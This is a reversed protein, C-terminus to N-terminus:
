KILKVIVFKGHRKLILFHGMNSLEDLKNKKTIIYVLKYNKLYNRVMEKDRTKILVRNLYFFASYGKIKYAIVPAQIESLFVKNVVKLSRERAYIPLVLFAILTYFIVVLAAIKKVIKDINDKYSLTYGAILSWAPFVPLIYQPLKSKSISFFLIPLIGWCLLMLLIEKDESLITLGTVIDKLFLSWPLFGILFVGGFFWFPKQRKFIPSLFRLINERWFFKYCYGPSKIELILFVPLCLVVVLILWLITDKFSKRMVVPVFIAMLTILIGIPGKTLVSLCCFLTSLLWFVLKRNTLYLYFFVISGTIFFTLVMDFIVIKSFVFFIFTTTLVFGSLFAVDEDWVIKGFLFILFVTFLASIAPVLRASFETVGLVKMSVADLWYFLPPKEYRVRGGLTPPLWHGEVAVERAVEANRGEDPDMLPFSGLGVTFIYLALLFLSLKNM